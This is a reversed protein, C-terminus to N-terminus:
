PKFEFDYVVAYVRATSDSVWQRYILGPDMNCLPVLHVDDIRSTNTGAVPARQRQMKYSYKVNLGGPYTMIANFYVRVSMACVNGPLIGEGYTDTFGYATSARTIQYSLYLQYHGHQTKFACFKYGSGSNISPSGWKFMGICRANKFPHYLARYSYDEREVGHRDRIPQYWSVKIDVQNNAGPCAYIYYWREEMDTSTGDDMMVDPLDTELLEISQPLHYINAVPNYNRPRHLHTRASSSTNFLTTLETPTLLRTFVVIDKVLGQMIYNNPYHMVGGAGYRKGSVNTPFSRWSHPDDLGLATVEVGDVFFKTNSIDNLDIQFVFHYWTDVNLPVDWYWAVRQTNNNNPIYFCMGSSPTVTSSPYWFTVFGGEVFSSSNYIWDSFPYQRGPFSDFKVRYSVTLQKTTNYDMRGQPDPAYHYLLDTNGGDFKNYIADDQFEVAINRQVWSYTANYQRHTFWGGNESHGSIDKTFLNRLPYNAIMGSSRPDWFPDNSLDGPEAIELSGMSIHIADHAAGTGSLPYSEMAFGSIHDIRKENPNSNLEAPLEEFVFTEGDPAVQLVKGVEITDPTDDLETFKRVFYKPHVKGPKM